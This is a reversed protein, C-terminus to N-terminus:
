QNKELLIRKIDLESWGTGESSSLKFTENDNSFYVFPEGQGDMFTEETVELNPPYCDNGTKLIRIGEDKSPFRKCKQFFDALGAKLLAVNQKTKTFRVESKYISNTAFFYSLVVIIIVAVLLLLIKKVNM